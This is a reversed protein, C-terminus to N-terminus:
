RGTMIYTDVVPNKFNGSRSMNAQSLGENTILTEDASAQWKSDAVLEIDKEARKTETSIGLNDTKIVEDGVSHKELKKAM